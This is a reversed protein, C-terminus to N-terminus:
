ARYERGTVQLFVDELTASRVALGKLARREALASLVTAPDRTAVTLSVTDDDVTADPFLREAEDVSLVGSEV